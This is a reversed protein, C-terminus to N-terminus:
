SLHTLAAVFRRIGLAIGAVLVAAIAPLAADSGTRPLEGSPTGTTTGPVSATVPRFSSSSTLQGVTITSPSTLVDLGGLAVGLQSMVPALAPVAAGTEGLLDGVTGNLDLAGTLLGPPTLTAKLATVAAEAKAYEGDPSVSETIALVDVDVMDALQANVLGLVSGVAASVTDGAANLVDAAAGLDLGSVGPVALAGVKVSGITGTVEAVSSEVTSQADAVLGIQIGEASLLPTGDLTALISTLVSAIVGQLEDVLDEVTGTLSACSVPLEKSLLGVDPTDPLVGGTAGDVTDIIEDAADDVAGTGALGGVTGLLGDVEACIDATLPGTEGQLSDITDNVTTVVGEPDPIEPLALGLGDLLGLITDLDLDPLSLGAGELVAALDLVEISPISISRTANAKGTAADTALAATASPISLLGGALSLDDLTADVGSRAGAADVISALTATLSGTFAPVDPLDPSVTQSDEAGSSSTSVAPSTFNLAPAIGSSITLPTVSTSAVPSGNAPDITSSGSDGLVSV